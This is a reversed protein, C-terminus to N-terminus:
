NGQVLENAIKTPLKNRNVQKQAKLSAIRDGQGSRIQYVRTLQSCGIDRDVTM